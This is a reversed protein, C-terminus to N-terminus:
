RLVSSAKRASAGSDLDRDGRIEIETRERDKTEGERKREDREKNDECRNINGDQVRIGYWELKSCVERRDRRRKGKRRGEAEGKVDGGGGMGRRREVVADPLGTTVTVEPM